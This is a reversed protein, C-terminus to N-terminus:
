TPNPNPQYTGGYAESAMDLPVSWDVPTVQTYTSPSQGSDYFVTNPTNSNADASVSSDMTAQLSCGSLSGPSEDFAVRPNHLQKDAGRGNFYVNFTLRTIPAGACVGTLRASLRAFLAMENDGPRLPARMPEGLFATPVADSADTWEINQSAASYRYGGDVYRNVWASAQVTVNPTACM